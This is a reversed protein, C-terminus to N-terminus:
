EVWGMTVAWTHLQADIDATYTGMIERAVAVEGARFALEVFGPAFPAASKIQDNYV